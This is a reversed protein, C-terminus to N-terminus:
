GGGHRVQCKKILAKFRSPLPLILLRPFCVLRLGKSFGKKSKWRDGEAKWDRIEKERLKPTQQMSQTGFLHLSGEEHPKLPRDPTSKPTSKQRADM